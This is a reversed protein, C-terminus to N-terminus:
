KGKPRTFYREVTGRHRPLIVPTNASGGGAAAQNLAGGQSGGGPKGEDPKGQSLGIVQNKKIETLAGPPLTEEKFKTGDERVPDGWTLSAAGPGENVGGKGAKDGQCEKLLDCIACKGGHKKLLEALGECDCKGAAECKKLMDPDILKAEALKDLLKKLDQKSGKLAATLKKLDEPSLKGTLGAKLLAPDLHKDVLGTEEAAKKMLAALEAMAETKVRADLEKDSLRLGEALAEAKALDETKSVAHEASEKAAKSVLDRLHDLAELTKVPDEGTAEKKLQALKEQLSEARAPELVAEKKLIDIQAALKDAEKGIELAHRATGSALQDPLFLGILVFVAAALFAVAPQGAQWRLRLGAAAPLEREWNGLPQEAAAMLLGGCDAAKDVVAALSARAPVQRVGGVVAAGLLLPVAALGWFLLAPSAGAAVRLVLIGSGWIFLWLTVLALSQRLILVCALRRRLRTIERDLQLM